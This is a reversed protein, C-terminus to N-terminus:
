APRFAVIKAGHESIVDAVLLALRQFLRPLEGRARSAATM